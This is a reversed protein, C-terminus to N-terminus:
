PTIEFNTVPLDHISDEEITVVGFNTKESNVALDNIITQVGCVKFLPKPATSYLVALQRESGDALLFQFVTERSEPNLPLVLSSITDNVEYLVDFGEISVTSVIVDETFSVGMVNTRPCRYVDINSSAPSTPTSNVLRISDFTGAAQLGSFVYREGCDASVFQVQSTYSLVLDHPVDNGFFTYRTTTSYPNLPIPVGSTLVADELFVTDVDPTEVSAVPYRDNGGGLIKFNLLIVNNNLQFCDPEDLCSFAILCFAVFWSLRKM